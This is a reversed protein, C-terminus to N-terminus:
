AVADAAMGAIAMASAGIVVLAAAFTMTSPGTEEGALTQLTLDAVRALSSDPDNTVAIIRPAEGRARLREAARVTEASEGSQSVLVLDDGARLMPLRFHLLEATDTM